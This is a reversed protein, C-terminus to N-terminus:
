GKGKTSMEEDGVAIKALGPKVIGGGMRLEKAPKLL